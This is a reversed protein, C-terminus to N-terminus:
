FTGCDITVSQSSNMTFTGGTINVATSAQTAMSGLGMSTRANAATEMVLNSGDGVIFESDTPTLGAIDALQADYAQVDSGIAVGLATRAASAGTAGTGGDGIALTGTISVQDM